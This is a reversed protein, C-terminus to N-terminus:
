FNLYTRVLSLLAYTLLFWLFLILEFRWNFFRKCSSKLFVKGTGKGSNKSTYDKERKATM